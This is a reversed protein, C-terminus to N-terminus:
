KKGLGIHAHSITSVVLNFGIVAAAGIENATESDVTLPSPLHYGFANAVNIAALLLGGIATGGVQAKQWAAPNEVQVGQKFLALLQSLGNM